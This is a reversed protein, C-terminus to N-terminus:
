IAGQFYHAAVTLLLTLILVSSLQDLVSTYLPLEFVYFGVDKGFEADVTGFPVKNLWLLVTEWQASAVVGSVLGIFLAIAIRLLRLYPTFAERYRDLPDVRQPEAASVRYTPGFRNALLLNSWVLLAVFAGVALGVYAQTAISKWLVSTLGAEQFWLLDTYFYALFNSSLLLVILAVVVVVRTRRRPSRAGVPAPRM